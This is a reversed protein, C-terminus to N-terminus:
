VAFLPWHPDYRGAVRALVAVGSSLYRGIRTMLAVSVPWLLWVPRCIVALVAGLPWRRPGSCGRWVVLLSWYPDYPGGIRALVAVGYPVFFPWYPEYRGAIRALVAMEHLLYLGTRSVAAVSVPWLLWKM